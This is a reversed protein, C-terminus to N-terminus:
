YPQPYTGPIFGQPPPGSYPQPPVPYQQPPGSYPQQPGQPMIPQQFQQPAVYAPMPAEPPIGPTAYQPPMAYAPMPAAPPVVPQIPQHNQRMESSQQQRPEVRKKKQLVHKKSSSSVNFKRMCIPCIKGNSTKLIHAIRADIRKKEQQRQQFSNATQVHQKYKEKYEAIEMAARAAKTQQQIIAKSRQPVENDLDINQRVCGILTLVFVM